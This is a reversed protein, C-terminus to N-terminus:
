KSKVLGCDTWPYGSISSLSARKTPQFTEGAWSKNSPFFQLQKSTLVISITRQFPQVSIYRCRMIYVLHDVVETLGLCAGHYLNKKDHYLYCRVIYDSIYFLNVLYFM